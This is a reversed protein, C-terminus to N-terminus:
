SIWWDCDLMQMLERHIGYAMGCSSNTSLEDGICDQVKLRYHLDSSTPNTLTLTRQQSTGIIVTGCDM